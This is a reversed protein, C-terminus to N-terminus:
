SRKFRRLLTTIIATVEQYIQLKLLKTTILWLPSICFALLVFILLPSTTSFPYMLNLLWAAALCCCTVILPPILQQLLEILNLNIAYRLMILTILMEVLGSFLFAYAMADLGYPYSCILSILLVAFCVLDRKFMLVEFGMAILLQPSFFSVVKILMWASLVAAIPAAADWQEGFLLRIAPLAAYGAVAIIPWVLSCLLATTKIYAAAIDNGRRKMESMYPQAVGGVGDLVSQSIFDIYGMGRSFMGVETTSGMKGIVLDSISYHIRRVINAVSTFVGLKAIEGLGRFYPMFVKVERTFYLSLVFRCLMNLFQGWALAYFGFGAHILLLTSGLQMFLGTLQIISIEKFRFNRALFADPVSIYPALLFSLALIVFIWKLDPQNFFSALSGSSAILSLAIGWCMLITMGYAKRIKQEDLKEERLLYANAGLLKVESLIMVVSSAIAFTGIEAPTLLRAIMVTSLLSLLKSAYKGFFSFMLGSRVNSM